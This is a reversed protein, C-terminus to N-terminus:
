EIGLEEKVDDIVDSPFWLDFIADFQQVSTLKPFGGYNYCVDKMLDFDLYNYGFRKEGWQYGSCSLDEIVKEYGRVELASDEICVPVAKQFDSIASEIKSDIVDDNDSMCDECLCEGTEEIYQIEGYTSNFWKGCDECMWYEDTFAYEINLLTYAIDEKLKGQKALEILKAYPSPEVVEWENTESNFKKYGEVQSWGDFFITPETDDGIYGYDYIIGQNALACLFDTNYKPTIKGEIIDQLKSKADTLVSEYLYSEWTRNGWHVETTLITENDKSVECLHKFGINSEKTDCNFKYGEFEKFNFTRM